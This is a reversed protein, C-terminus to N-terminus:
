SERITEEKIRVKTAFYFGVALFFSVIALYFSPKITLLYMTTYQTDKIGSESLGNPGIIIRPLVSFISTFVLMFIFHLLQWNYSHVFKHTLLLSVSVLFYIMTLIPFNKIVVIGTGRILGLIEAGQVIANVWTFPLLFIPFFWFFLYLYELKVKKKM